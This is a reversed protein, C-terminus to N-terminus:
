VVVEIEDPFSHIRPKLASESDRNAQLWESVQNHVREDYQLNIHNVGYFVAKRGEPVYLHHNEHTKGAEGLASEIMVLGDGVM